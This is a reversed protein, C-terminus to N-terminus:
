LDAKKIPQFGTILFTYKGLDYGRFDSVKIFKVDARKGQRQLNGQLTYNEGVKLKKLQEDSVIGKIHLQAYNLLSGMPRNNDNYAIFNAIKVSQGSETTDTVSSFKLPMGNLFGPENSLKILKRQFQDTTAEQMAEDKGWDPNQAIFQTLEKEIFITSEVKKEEGRCAVFVISVFLVYVLKRM